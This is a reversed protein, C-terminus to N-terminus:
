HQRTTFNTEVSTRGFAEPYDSINENSVPGNLPEVTVTYSDPPVGQITYTGDPRTIAGIPTKRINGGFHLTSSVSDVFVHAGFIGANNSQRRITGSITAMGTFSGGPYTASLGAVDDYGLTVLSPPAFPYMVARVVPSHDLGLFHGIEHTAITQIDVGGAGGTSWTRSPNFLIDADLVTGDNQTTIITIALTGDDDFSDSTCVFCILNENNFGTSTSTVDGGRVVSISTNPAAAWTAFSTQIVTGLNRNGSVNGGTNPNLRWTIPFSPWRDRAAQGSYNPLYSRAPVAHFLLIAALAPLALLALTRAKM